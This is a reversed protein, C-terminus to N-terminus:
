CMALLEEKNKPQMAALLADGRGKVIKAFKSDIMAQLAATKVVQGVGYESYGITTNINPKFDRDVRDSFHTHVQTVGNFLDYQTKGENGIGHFAKDICRQAMLQAARLAPENIAKGSYHVGLLYKALDEGKLMDTSRLIDVNTELEKKAHIANEIHYRLYNIAIQEDGVHRKSTNLKVGVENKVSTFTNNCVVRTMSDRAILACSGDHSNLVNIYQKFNDNAARFGEGMEISFFIRKLGQLSGATVIRADADKTAKMICEYLSSNQFVTFSKKGCDIFQLPMLARPDTSDFDATLAKFGEVPVEVGHQQIYMDHEEVNWALGSNQIDIADVLNELGHWAKETTTVIDLETIEHSM